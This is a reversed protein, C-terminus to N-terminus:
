AAGFTENEDGAQDQDQVLHSPRILDYYAMWPSALNGYDRFMTTSVV